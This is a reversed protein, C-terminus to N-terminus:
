KTARRKDPIGEGLGSPLNLALSHSHVGGHNDTVTLTVPYTGRLGFTKVPNAVTATTGDGFDWQWAVVSGDADSSQDSFHVTYGKQSARFGAKPFANGALANTKAMEALFALGLHGFAVSPEATNGMVPLTDNVTHIYPFYGGAATGAEFMMTSPFGASTWAAHDSCGYGCAYTGRSYGLPALYADFMSTLHQSLAANSYDTILRMHVPQGGARFNTMDLQLAGVVNRGQARFSQAIANSGRLGVEEAAYGMFKVTRKPRWGNALAIRIVETLTAIGSADDDAGPAFMGDGTGSNSISDLHAGIVVIENPLEAGQVTLIVSPQISCNTCGTFLEASVDSRGNGLALWTDHIWVAANRGNNSAFYRSPYATSLYNITGRINVEQVQPLWAAVTAANDVRYRTVPLRKLALATQDARIFALAKARSDFAFYGGCRLENDHVHRGLDQLQHSKLESVVLVRGTPDRQFSASRALSRVSGRYTEQSSVVFVPAFPDQDAVPLRNVLPQQARKGAIGAQADTAQLTAALLLCAMLQRTSM